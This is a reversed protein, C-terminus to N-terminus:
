LKIIINEKIIFRSILYYPEELNELLSEKRLQELMELDKVNGHFHLLCSKLKWQFANQFNPQFQM